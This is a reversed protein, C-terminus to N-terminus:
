GEINYKIYSRISNDNDFNFRYMTNSIQYYYANESIYHQASSFDLVADIIDEDRIQIGKFYIPEHQEEGKIFREIELQIRQEDVTFSLNSNSSENVECGTLNLIFIILMIVITTKKM